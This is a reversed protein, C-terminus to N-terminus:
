SRRVRTRLPTEIIRTLSKSSKSKPQKGFFGFRRLGQGMMTMTLRIAITLRNARESPFLRMGIPSLSHM